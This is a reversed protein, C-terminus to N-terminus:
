RPPQDNRVWSSRRRLTSAMGVLGAVLMSLMWPSDIPVAAVVASIYTFAQVFTTTGFPTVVEVDVTGTGPPAIVTITTDSVVVVNTGPTAGFSVTTNSSLFNSGTITVTTGGAAPGSPPSVGTIAPPSPVIYALVLGITPDNHSDFIKTLIQNFEALTIHGSILGDFFVTATSPWIDNPASVEQIYFGITGTFSDENMTIIPGTTTNGNVLLGTQSGVFQNNMLQFAQNTSSDLEMNVDPIGNMVNGSLISLGATDQVVIGEDPNVGPTTTFNLTNNSITLNNASQISIIGVDNNNVTNGSVTVTGAGFPLIGTASANLVTAINSEVLNNTISGATSGSYQIGNPTATSTNPTLVYGRNVTSGSVNATLSAGRCDIGIRQYFDILSNTINFTVTGLTSSNIIGGGALENFNATQRTNTTHVNQITGGANHYGIAFFRDSNGYIPAVVTDQQTGGDVTLASINVTQPTPAAQNDVMVISWVNAGINFSQTLHTSPGPAQIITLNQGAGVINLSKSIVQVEQVYTGASLQITDGSSASNIAAQISAPPPGVVITAAYLPQALMALVIASTTVLSMM